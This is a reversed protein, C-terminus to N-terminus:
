FNNIIVPPSSHAPPYAPYAPSYNPPSYTPAPPVANSPYTPYSSPYIPSDTQPPYTPAAQVSSPPYIPYSQSDTPPYASPLSGPTAPPSNTAEQMNTFSQSTPLTTQNDSFDTSLLGNVIRRGMQDLIPELPIALTEQATLAVTSTTLVVLVALKSCQKAFLNAQTVM